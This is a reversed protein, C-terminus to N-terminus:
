GPLDIPDGQTHGCLALTHAPHARPEPTTKELPSPPPLSGAQAAWLTVQGPVHGAGEDTVLMRRANPGGRTQSTGTRACLAGSPVGVGEM